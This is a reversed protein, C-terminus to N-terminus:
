DMGRLFLLENKIKHREKKHSISRVTWNLLWNQKQATFIRSISESYRKGQSAFRILGYIIM